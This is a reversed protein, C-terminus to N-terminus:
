IPIFFGEAKPTAKGHSEITLKVILGGTEREWEDSMQEALTCADGFTGVFYSEQLCKSDGNEDEAYFLWKREPEM